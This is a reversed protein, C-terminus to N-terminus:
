SLSLKQRMAACYHGPAVGALAAAWGPATGLLVTCAFVPTFERQPTERMCVRTSFFGLVVLRMIMM